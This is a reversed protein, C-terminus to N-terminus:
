VTGLALSKERALPHSSSILDYLDQPQMGVVYDSGNTRHFMEAKEHHEPCLTIGNELVYGGFPLSNRDVIHHADLNETVDCFVCKHGDRNFVAERFNHRIQKKRSEVM